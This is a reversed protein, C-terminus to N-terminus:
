NRNLHYIKIDNDTMIVFMKDNVNLSHINETYIIKEIKEMINLDYILIKNNRSVFLLNKHNCYRYGAVITFKDNQINYVYVFPDGFTMGRFELIYYFSGIIFPYSFIYDYGLKAEDNIKKRIFPTLDKYLKKSTDCIIQVNTNYFLVYNYSKTIGIYDGDFKSKISQCSIKDVLYGELDHIYLSGDFFNIITGDDSNGIKINKLFDKNINKLRVNYTKNSKIIQLANKYPKHLLDLCVERCYHYQGTFSLIYGGYKSVKYGYRDYISFNYYIWWEDLYLIEPNHSKITYKTTTLAHKIKSSLNYSSIINYPNYKFKQGIFLMIYQKFSRNILSACLLSKIDLLHFIIYILEDPLEFM